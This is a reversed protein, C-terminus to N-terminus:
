PKLLEIGGNKVVFPIKFFTLLKSLAKQSPVYNRNSPSVIKRFTAYNVELGYMEKLESVKFWKLKDFSTDNDKAWVLYHERLLERIENM